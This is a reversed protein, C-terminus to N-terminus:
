LAKGLSARKEVTYDLSEYFKLVELNSARVQLILKPGRISKLSKEANKM